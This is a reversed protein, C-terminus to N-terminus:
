VIAIKKARLRKGKIKGDRFFTLTRKVSSQKVAVYSSTATIKIKGIDENPVKADQTLAGLVDGPRLKEKKGGKVVIMNFAPSLIRNAHFRLAQAGKSPIRTDFEEEIRAMFIEEQPDMLNVALGAKGARGTRGIRHIHTAVDESIRFNVVLPVDEIDLGRAAVDTAVLVQACDSSFMALMETRERQELDGHLCVVAFGSGSLADATRQTEDKTACFVICRQPQYETIVAKLADTRQKSEVRYTLQKIDPLTQEETVDIRIAKPALESVISEVEAPFTASFLLCQASPPIRGLVANLAEEFGMDLMRDAEDLVLHQVESLDLRRKSIHDLIRGPTGVIINAGHSLSAIQPPVPVGGCLTLIKTNAIHKAADRLQEAVQEALERTPCLVIASPLRSSSDLKQLIPLGFALTKGSGTIAKAVVDQGSLAEPIAQQQIATMTHFGLSDLASVLEKRLSLNLFAHQETM